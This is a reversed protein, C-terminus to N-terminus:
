LLNKHRLERKVEFLSERSIGYGIQLTAYVENLLARTETYKNNSKELREENALWELTSFMTNILEDAITLAQRIQHAKRTQEITLGEVKLSTIIESRLKRFHKIESATSVVQTDSRSQQYMEMRRYYGIETITPLAWRVNKHANNPHRYYM